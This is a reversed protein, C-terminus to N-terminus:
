PFTLRPFVSSKFSQLAANHNIVIHLSTSVFVCRFTLDFSDDLQNVFAHQLTVVGCAVQRIKSLPIFDIMHNSLVLFMVVPPDKPTIDDLSLRASEPTPNARRRTVKYIKYNDTESVSSKSSELGEVVARQHAQSLLAESLVINEKVLDSLNELFHPRGNERDLQIVLASAQLVAQPLWTVEITVQRNGNKLVQVSIIDGLRIRNSKESSLENTSDPAPPPAMEQLSDISQSGRRHRVGSSTSLLMPFDLTAKKENRYRLIYRDTLIFFESTRKRRFSSTQVEGYHQVKGPNFDVASTPTSRGSSNTSGVRFSLSSIPRFRELVSSSRMRTAEIEAIKSAVTISSQSQSSRYSARPELTTLTLDSERQLGQSQESLASWESLESPDSPESLSQHEPITLSNFSSQSLM